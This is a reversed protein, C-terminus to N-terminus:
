HSHDPLITEQINKKIITRRKKIKLGSSKDIFIPYSICMNLIMFLFVVECVSIRLYIVNLTTFSSFAIPAIFINLFGFKLRHISSNNVIRLFSCSLHTVIIFLFEYIYPVQRCLVIKM